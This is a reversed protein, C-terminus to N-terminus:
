LAPPRYVGAASPPTLDAATPRHLFMLIFACLAFPLALLPSRSLFALVLGYIAISETLVLNLIFPTFARAMGEPSDPDLQGAQIPAVLARRRYVLTGAATVVSIGGLIWAFRQVFAPDPAPGQLTVVWPVVLYIVQSALLTFWLIRFTPHTV